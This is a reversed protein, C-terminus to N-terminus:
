LWKLGALLVCAVLHAAAAFSYSCEYFCRGRWVAGSSVDKPVHLSHCTSMYHSVTGGVGGNHFNFSEPPPKFTENMWNRVYYPWALGNHGGQGQTISGGVAAM